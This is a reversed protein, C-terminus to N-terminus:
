QEADEILFGTLMAFVLKVPNEFAVIKRGIRARLQQLPRIGCGNRDGHGARREVLFTGNGAGHQDQVVHGALLFEDCPQRPLCRMVAQGFQGIAALELMAEFLRQLWLVILATLLRQHEKIEVLELDDVVGATVGCAVLQEAFDCFRQLQM